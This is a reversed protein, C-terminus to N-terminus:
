GNNLIDTRNVWYRPERHLHAVALIVITEDDIGYILGYPFRNVICRRIDPAIEECSFPWAAIRRITRDMEDLFEVGLGSIQSEYWDVAQDLEQGAPDIFRIKM